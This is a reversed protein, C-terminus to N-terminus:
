KERRGSKKLEEEERKRKEKDEEERRRRKRKIKADGGACQRPQPTHTTDNM